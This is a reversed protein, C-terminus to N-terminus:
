VFPRKGALFRQHLRGAGAAEWGFAEKVPLRRDVVEGPQTVAGVGLRDGIQLRLIVERGVLRGM